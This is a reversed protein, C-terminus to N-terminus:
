ANRLAITASNYQMIAKAANDRKAKPQTCPQAGTSSRPEDAGAGTGVISVADYVLMTCPLHIVEGGHGRLTVSTTNKKTVVGRYDGVRVDDGETIVPAATEYLGAIFCVLVDRISYALGALVLGLFTGSEAIDFPLISDLVEVLQGIVLFSILLMSTCDYVRMSKTYRSTPLQRRLFVAVEGLTTLLLMDGGVEAYNQASQADDGFVSDLLLALAYLLGSAVGHAVFGRSIGRALTLAIPVGLGIVGVSLIKEITVGVM